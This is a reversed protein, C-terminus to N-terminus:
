LVRLRDLSRITASRGTLYADLQAPSGTIIYDRQGKAQSILSNLAAAVEQRAPSLKQEVERATRDRVVTLQVAALVDLGILAVFTLALLQVRRRLRLRGDPM